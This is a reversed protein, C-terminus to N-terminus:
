PQEGGKALAQELITGDSGSPVAIGLLLSIFWPRDADDPTPPADAPIVGRERLASLLADTSM